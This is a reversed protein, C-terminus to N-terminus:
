GLIAKFVKRVPRYLSPHSKSFHRINNAGIVKIIARKTAFSAVKVKTIGVSKLHDYILFTPYDSGNRGIDKIIKNAPLYMFAKVKLLPVKSSLIIRPALEAYNKVDKKNNISYEDTNFFVRWSFGAEELVTVLNLEYEKIVESVKTIDKVEAWFKQFAKSRIVRKNFVQFYSQIHHPIPEEDELVDKDYAYDTMGWFDAKSNEMKDYVSQLPYIPGFCTDNMLTVSDHKELEKWGIHKLGDRWASFDFGMNKRQIFNDYLGKLRAKDTASVESNSMFVISSFLPKIQQLQYVVHESLEGNKNFHVYFLIRNM